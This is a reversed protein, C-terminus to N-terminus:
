GVTKGEKMIIHEGQYRVGKGKYPEPKRFRRITAAVEGVLQKDAGQVTIQTNNEVTVTVGDPVSYEIPHSYGLNMTLKNGSSQARYGVGIIELKKQFGDTVGVVMGAVLSRALGHMARARKGDNERTMTVVDGEVAMGVLPPLRMELKAKPGEVVVEGGVLAVKVGAPLNIPQKGIRSM